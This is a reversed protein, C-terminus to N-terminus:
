SPPTRGPEPLTFYFTAGADPAGEVWIRGGHRTIIQKVIALGLGTGEYETRGRLRQFAGFIKDAHAPDFGIGNDRVYYVTRDNTTIVGVQVLADPRRDTFKAANDLLNALVQRLMAPDGCARPLPQLQLQPRPAARADTLTEWTERALKELDVPQPRLAAQQATSYALIDTILSDMRRASTKIREFLHREDDDMKPVVTDALLDSFGRISRLPARLDHSVWQSFGRLDALATQLEATREALARNMREVAATAKKQESPEILTWDEHRILAFQHRMLVEVLQSADCKLLPYACMSLSRHGNLIGNLAGELIMMPDWDDERMWNENTCARRGAYGRSLADAVGVPVAEMIRKPDFGGDTLYRAEPSVVVMQGRDLAQEFGNIERGLTEIADDVDLPDTTTLLGAENKELGVRYFPVLFDLLDQRGNFFHCFHTGWPAKGIAPIGLDCGVDDGEPSASATTPTSPATTPTSPPETIMTQCGVHGPTSITAL